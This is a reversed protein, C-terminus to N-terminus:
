KAGLRDRAGEWLKRARVIISANELRGARERAAIELLPEGAKPDQVKVPQMWGPPRPFERQLPPKGSTVCGALM